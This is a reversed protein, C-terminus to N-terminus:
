RDEHKQISRPEFTGTEDWWQRYLSMAWGSVRYSLEELPVGLALSLNIAFRLEDTLRPAM